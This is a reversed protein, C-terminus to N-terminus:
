SIELVTQWSGPLLQQHISLVPLFDDWPTIMGSVEIRDAPAFVTNGLTTITGGPGPSRLDYSVVDNMSWRIPEPLEEPPDLAMGTAEVIWRAGQADRKLGIGTTAGSFVPDTEGDYGLAATLPQDIPFLFYGDEPELEGHLASLAFECTLRSSEGLRTHCDLRALQWAPDLPKGGVLLDFAAIGGPTFQPHAM